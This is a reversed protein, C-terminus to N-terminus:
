RPPETSRQIRFIRYIDKFVEEMFSRVAGFLGSRNYTDIIYAWDVRAIILMIVLSLAVMVPIVIYDLGAAQIAWAVSSGLFVIVSKLVIKGLAIAVTYIWISFGSFAFPIYVVDDPIPTAAALFILFWGWKRALESFRRMNERTEESTLRSVGKGIAYIVTKGFTAGMASSLALGFLQLPDHFQTSLTVLFILYPVSLYPISNSALSVIFIWIYPNSRFSEALSEIIYSIEAM